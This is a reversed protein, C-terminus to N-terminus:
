SRFLTILLPNSRLTRSPPGAVQRQAYLLLQLSNDGPALSAPLTLALPFNGPDEPIADPDIGTGYPQASIPTGVVTWGDSQWVEWTLEVTAAPDGALWVAPSFAAFAPDDVDFALSLHCTGGEVWCLLPTWAPDEITVEAAPVPPASVIGTFPAHRGTGARAQAGIAGVLLPPSRLQSPIIPVLSMEYTISPRYATDGQTSWIQNIQEDTIPMFVAQMRVTIGNLALASLIPTEHFIRLVEGLMRLENEGAGITEGNSPEAIGFPTVMCFLRLRWPEDPRAGAQFGSPEFRYFFLNLRHEDSSDDLNSPSGISVNINNSAADLGVRVFDAIQNCVQSLSSEPLM